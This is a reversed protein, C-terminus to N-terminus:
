WDVLVCEGDGLVEAAHGPEIVLFDGAKGEVASGDRLRYVIRGAVIYERHSGPCYDMGTRPKANKEWSWGPKLRSRWVVTDGIQLGEADGDAGYEETADPDEFSKRYVAM